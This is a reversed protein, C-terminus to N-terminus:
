LNIIKEADNEIDEINDILFKFHGYEGRDLDFSEWTKNEVDWIVCGHGSLNEGMSQQMLSGCYVIKVGNKKIEQRKHIHGAIVFDLGDFYTPNLGKDTTRGADTCAGNIDGHILGVLTKDTNQSKYIEIEPRTFDDFTSFLCFAINNDEYIGSTYGLECDLYHCNTFNSMTFVPTLSCMRTANNMLYDHNGCIVYTTAIENLRRLLWSVYTKSENSVTIKQDFLDGAIVIRVEDANHTSVFEQCYTIFKELFEGTEEMRKYNRVHIDGVSIIYKVM